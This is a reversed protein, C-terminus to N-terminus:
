ASETESNGALGTQLLPTLLQRLSEPLRTPRLTSADVCVVTIEARCLPEEGLPEEGRLAQQRFAISSRYLASIRADIVLQDDLRAPRLYDVRVAAVVFLVGERQALEGQDFGLVRLWETRCREFFRLYNAHYVVGGADTDEYYVRIPIHFRSEASDTNHM